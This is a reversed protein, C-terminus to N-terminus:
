SKAPNLNDSNFNDLIYQKNNNRKNNRVNTEKQDQDRDRSGESIRNIVKITRKTKSSITKNYEHNIGMAQMLKNLLNPKM